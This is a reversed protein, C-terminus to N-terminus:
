LLTLSSIIKSAISAFTEKLTTADGKPVPWASLSTVGAVLCIVLLPVIFQSGLKLPVEVM